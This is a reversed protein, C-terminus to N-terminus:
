ELDIKGEAFDKLNAGIDAIRIKRPTNVAPTKGGLDNSGAAKNQPNFYIGYGGRDRLHEVYDRLNDIETGDDRITTPFVVKEGDITLDSAALNAFHKLYEPNGGLQGFALVLEKDIRARNAQTQAERVQQEIQQKEQKFKELAKQYEGKQELEQQQVKSQLEKLQQYETPDIGALSEIQKKVESLSKTLERSKEREAKLTKKLNEIDTNPDSTEPSKQQQNEDSPKNDITPNLDEM